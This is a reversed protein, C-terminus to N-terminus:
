MVRKVLAPAGRRLIGPDTNAEKEVRMFTYLFYRLSILVCTGMKEGFVFIKVNEGPLFSTWRTYKFFHLCGVFSAGSVDVVDLHLLVCREM